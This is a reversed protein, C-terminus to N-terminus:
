QGAGWAEALGCRGSVCQRTASGLPISPTSCSSGNHARTTRVPPWHHTSSGVLGGGGSGVTVVVAAPEGGHTERQLQSPGAQASQAREPPPSSSSKVEENKSCGPRRGLVCRSSVSCAVRLRVPHHGNCPRDALVHRRCHSWLSHSVLPPTQGSCPQGSGPCRSCNKADNAACGPKPHDNARLASRIAGRCGCSCWGNLSM